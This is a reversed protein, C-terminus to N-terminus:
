AGCYRHGLQTMLPCRSVDADHGSQGWFRVNILVATIVAKHWLCVNGFNRL